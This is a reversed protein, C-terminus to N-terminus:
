CVRAPSTQYSLVLHLSAQSAVTSPCHRSSTCWLRLPLEFKPVVPVSHSAPTSPCQRSSTCRLRLLYHSRRHQPLSNQLLAPATRLASEGRDSICKSGRLCPCFPKCCHQRLACRQSMEIEEFILDFSDPFRPKSSRPTTLGRAKNQLCRASSARQWKLLCAPLLFSRFADV